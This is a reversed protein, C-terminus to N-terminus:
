FTLQDFPIFFKGVSFLLLLYFIFSPFGRLEKEGFAYPLFFSLPFLILGISVLKHFVLFELIILGGSLGILLAIMRFLKKLRISSGRLKNVISKACLLMLLGLGAVLVIIDLLLFEDTSSSFQERELRIEFIYSYVGAYVMPVVFGTIALVSERLVFPRIVWVMWFLFPISILLVPFLTCAVGFMLAANFVHRRGDQNQRLKFLQQLVLILLTQTLALGDFFYFTSFFSMCCVYVMSSLYNNREMFENRNFLTNILIANVFVLAPALFDLFWVDAHVISGWFGLSFEERAVHYGTLYNCIYFGGIIIPLFLLAYSRNGFFLRIVLRLYM